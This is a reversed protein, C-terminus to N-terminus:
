VAEVSFVAPLYTPASCEITYAGPTDTSFVVEGDTVNHRQRGVKATVAISNGNMSQTPLGTITAADVGDAAITTTNIAGPMSPKLEPSTQTLDIYYDLDNYGGDLLDEGDGAQLDASDSPCKVQRVIEGTTTNYVTYEM